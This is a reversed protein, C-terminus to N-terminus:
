GGGGYVGSGGGYVGGGGAGQDESQLWWMRVVFEIQHVEM